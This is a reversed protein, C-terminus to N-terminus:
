ETVGTTVTTKPQQSTFYGYGFWCAAGIVALGAISILITRLSLLPPTEESVAAPQYEIQKTLIQILSPKTEKVFEAIDSKMTRIKPEPRASGPEPKPDSSLPRVEGRQPPGGTPQNQPEQNAM